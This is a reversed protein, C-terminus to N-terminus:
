CWLTKQEREGRGCFNIETEAFGGGRTGGAPDGRCDAVGTGM